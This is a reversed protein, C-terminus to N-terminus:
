IEDAWPLEWPRCDQLFHAPRTEQNRYFDLFAEKLSEGFGAHDTALCKFHIDTACVQDGDISYSLAM